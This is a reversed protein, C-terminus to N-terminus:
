SRLYKMSTMTETETEKRKELSHRRKKRPQDFCTQSIKLKKCRYCPRIDDCAAHQKRCNTCANKVQIRKKRQNEACMKIVKKSYYAQIQYKLTSDAM